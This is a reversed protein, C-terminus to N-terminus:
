GGQGKLRNVFGTLSQPSFKGFNKIVEVEHSRYRQKHRTEPAVIYVTKSKFPKQRGYGSSKKLDALQMDLWADEGNGYYILAADCDILKQKHAEFVSEADGEFAKLMVEFGEKEFLYDELPVVADLDRQDCLLYIGPVGEKATLSDQRETEERRSLLDIIYNKLEDLPVEELLEAGNQLASEEKLSALFKKQREDATQLGEPLWILRSFTNEERGRQAALQTQLDVVSISGDEPVVGYKEGVMHISLQCRRLDERVQEEVSSAINPLSRAPLITFGRQVLQRKIKDRYNTIDSTTEALYVAPGPAPLGAQGNGERLTELLLYIEYAVDELRELYNSDINNGLPPRFERPRETAPDTYYFEYGLMGQLQPPELERLVPTKVVKFIRAKDGIRIGRDDEAAQYFEEVEKLCWQSKIYGPTLVSVLVAINPFQQSLTDSFYDNGQLKADRWISVEAGLLQELRVELSEHFQSVWGQYDKSLPRNDKHSYSIFIDNEYDPLYAM